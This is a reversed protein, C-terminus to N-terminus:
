SCFHLSCFEKKKKKEGLSATLRLFMNCAPGRKMWSGRPRRERPCLRWSSPQPVSARPPQRAAVLLHARVRKLSVVPSVVALLLFRCRRDCRSPLLALDISSCFRGSASSINPGKPWRQQHPAVEAGLADLTPILLGAFGVLCGDGRGWGHFAAPPYGSHRAAAQSYRPQASATQLGM